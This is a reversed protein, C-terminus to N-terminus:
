ASHILEYHRVEQDFSRMMKQAKESVVALHIEKGAFAKIAERSTWESIFIYEPFDGDDRRRISAGRFGKLTALHPLIEVKLYNVYNEEEGPKVRCSWYRSIM